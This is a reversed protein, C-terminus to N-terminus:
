RRIRRSWEGHGEGVYRRDEKWVVSLSANHVLFRPYASPSRWNSRPWGSCRMPCLHIRISRDCGTTLSHAHMRNPASARNIVENYKDNINKHDFSLFRIIAYDLSLNNSLTNNFRMHVDTGYNPARKLMWYMWCDNKNNTNMRFNYSSYFLVPLPASLRIYM